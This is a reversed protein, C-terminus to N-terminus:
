PHYVATKSALQMAVIVAGALPDGQEHWVTAVRAANQGIRPTSKSGAFNWGSTGKGDARALAGLTIPGSCAPAIAADAPSAIAALSLLGGGLTALLKRM